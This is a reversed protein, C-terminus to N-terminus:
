LIVRASPEPALPNTSPMRQTMMRCTLTASSKTMTTSTVLRAYILAESLSTSSRFFTLSLSSAVACSTSLSTALPAFCPKVSSAKKAPSPTPPPHIWSANRSIGLVAVRLSPNWYLNDKIIFLDDRKLNVRSLSIGINIKMKFHYNHSEVYRGIGAM